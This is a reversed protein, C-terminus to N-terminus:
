DDILSDKRSFVTDMQLSNFEYDTLKLQINGEIREELFDKFLRTEGFPRKISPPSFEPVRKNLRFNYFISDPLIYEGINKYYINVEIENEKQKGTTIKSVIYETTDVWVSLNTSFPSYKTNFKKFGNTDAKDSQSRTFNLSDPKIFILPFFKFNPLLSVGETKVKVKDPKKYYITIQKDPMRFNTMNLALRARCQLNNIRDYRKRTKNLAPNIKNNQDAGFGQNLILILLFFLFWSNRIHSIRM